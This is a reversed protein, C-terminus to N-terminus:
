RILKNYKEFLMEKSMFLYNPKVNTITKISRDSTSLFLIPFQLAWKFWRYYTNSIEKTEFGLRQSVRDLMTIGIIGKIEDSKKHENIFLVVEPLSREVARYIWKGKKLESKFKRTEKMIRVNHLHIKILKDNYKIKTGDSLEVEYGKYTTTRVRLINQKNAYQKELATLRTFYYYFTDILGWFYYLLGKLIM